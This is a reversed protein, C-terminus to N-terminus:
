SYRYFDADTIQAILDTYSPVPDFPKKPRVDYIIFKIKMKKLLTALAAVEEKISGHLSVNAKGDTILIGEIVEKDNKMRIMKALLLLSELASSLPTKGGTPLDNLAKIITIYNRTPPVIITASNGRFAILSVYDRMIYSSKILEKAIGKAISIRRLVGMSGSSDLLIVLLRSVRHKRIVVRIDDESITLPLSRQKSAAVNITAALDIDRLEEEKNPSIYSIPYGSPYGVLTSKSGRSGRSPLYKTSEGDSIGRYIDVDINYPYFVREHEGISNDTSGYSNEINRKGMHTYQPQDGKNNIHEERRNGLILPPKPFTPEQFSRSKIRHPLALEMAKKIDTRSVKKRGDIAAIAKATKVTVIEARHTKIELDIITKILDKLLEDDIDVDIILNRARVISGRIRDEEKEYEKYFSNPDATFEEVRRVIEEREEYNKLTEINVYLGFRDLLQPRLEGEEPNMSGVLIFRAPHRVSIGEREIINWGLAASDLLVDAVYDDLLNVEDIYLINRNAEALLGHQLARIGETLAKKINLTGVLRDVTISLPLDVVKMKRKEVALKEGNSFKEYCSDCMEFINYPNCNYPCGKVVDIEPLVYSLARVLTSKGTGKEGSLLVGGITPDVACALLALKAKEQGVVAAFPFVIKRNGKMKGMDIVDVM